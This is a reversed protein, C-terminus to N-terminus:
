LIGSATPMQSSHSNLLRLSGSFNCSTLAEGQWNKCAPRAVRNAAM